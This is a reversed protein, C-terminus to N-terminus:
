NSHKIFKPYNPHLFYLYSSKTIGYCTDYVARLPSDTESTKNSHKICQYYNLHLSFLFKSQTTDSWPAAVAM